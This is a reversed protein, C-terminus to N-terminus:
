WNILLKENRCITNIVSFMLPFDKDNLDKKIKDSLELILLAGEVTIDKM